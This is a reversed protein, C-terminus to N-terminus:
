YRCQEPVQKTPSETASELNNSLDKETSSSSIPRPNIISKISNCVEKKPSSTCMPHHPINPCSASPRFVTGNLGPAVKSSPLSSCSSTMKLQTSPRSSITATSTSPILSQSSRVAATMQTTKQPGTVTTTSKQSPSSCPSFCMGTVSKQKLSLSQAMSTVPYLNSSSPYSISPFSHKLRASQM